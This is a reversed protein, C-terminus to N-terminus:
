YFLNQEKEEVKKGFSGRSIKETRERDWVSRCRINKPARKKQREEGTSSVSRRRFLDGRRRAVDNGGAKGEEGEAAVDRRAGRKTPRQLLLGVSRRWLRLHPRAPTSGVEDMNSFDFCMKCACKAVSFSQVVYMRCIDRSVGFCQDGDRLLATGDFKPAM